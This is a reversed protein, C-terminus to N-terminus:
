PREEAHLLDLVMEPQLSPLARSYVILEFLFSWADSPDEKWLRCLKSALQRFKPTRKLQWPDVSLFPFVIGVVLPEHDSVDWESLAGTPIVFMLDVVKSLQKRWYPTVLRPCVFVHTSDQRKLRSKRLEEVAYRPAAAPPNWIYTRSELEPYWFGRENKKWSKIHHGRELWDKPELVTVKEGSLLDRLKGELDDSRELASKHIPIYDLFGKGQM